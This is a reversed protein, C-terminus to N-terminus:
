DVNKSTYKVSLLFMIHNSITCLILVNRLITIQVKGRRM